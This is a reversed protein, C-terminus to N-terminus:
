PLPKFVPLEADVPLEAQKRSYNQTYFTGWQSTSLPTLYMGSFKGVLAVEEQGGITDGSGEAVKVTLNNTLDVTGKIDSVWVNLNLLGNFSSIPPLTLNVQKGTTLDMEVYVDDQNLNRVKNASIELELETTTAVTTDTVRILGGKIKKVEPM